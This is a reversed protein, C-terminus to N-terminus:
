AKGCREAGILGRAHVFTLDYPLVVYSLLACRVSALLWVDLEVPAFFLSRGRIIALMPLSQEFKNSGAFPELLATPEDDDEDAALPEVFPLDENKLEDEDALCKNLLSEAAIMCVELSRNLAATSAAVLEFSGDAAM